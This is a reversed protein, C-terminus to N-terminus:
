LKWEALLNIEQGGFGGHRPADVGYGYGLSFTLDKNPKIIIGAGLGNLSHRPLDHGSFYSVLAYDWNFQLFVHDQGPFAPLRYSTNLLFFRRAFIEGAYYGHLVFPFENQFPLGSGMRFCSLVDTQGTIGASMMINATHNGLVPAAGGLRGWSRQTLHGTRQDQGPLGQTGSKERYGAEYWLSLEFAKDPLLEPPIGGIRIGARAWNILTDPPLRYDPDTDSTREYIAYQSRLRIEAEVPMLDAIKHLHLYYSAAADVGNGWFSESRAYVGNRIENFNNEFFGGGISLGVAHGDVPWNDRILESQIYPSLAVRLYLDKDHFHPRNWLLFSYGSLPGNGRLPGEFGLEINTRPEPDVQASATRPIVALFLFFLYATLPVIGRLLDPSQVTIRM